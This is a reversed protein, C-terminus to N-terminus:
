IEHMIKMIEKSATITPIWYKSDTSEFIIRKKNGTIPNNKDGRYGTILEFIIACISLSFTLRKVESITMKEERPLETLEIM